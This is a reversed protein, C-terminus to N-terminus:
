SRRSHESCTLSSTIARTTNRRTGITGAHPHRFWGFIRYGGYENRYYPGQIQPVIRQERPYRYWGDYLGNYEFGNGPVQPPVYPWHLSDNWDQAQAVEDRWIRGSGSDPGASQAMLLSVSNVETYPVSEWVTPVIGCSQCALSFDRIGSSSLPRKIVSASKRFSDPSLAGIPLRNGLGNPVHSLILHHSTATACAKYEDGSGTHTKAGRTVPSDAPTFLAYGAGETRQTLGAPDLRGPVRTGTSTGCPVVGGPGGECPPFTHAVSALQLCRGHNIGM